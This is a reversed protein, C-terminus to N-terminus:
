SSESMSLFACGEERRPEARTMTSPMRATSISMAMAKEDNTRVSRLPEVLRLFPM